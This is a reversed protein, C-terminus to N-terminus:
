NFHLEIKSREGAILNSSFPSTDHGLTTLRYNYRNADLNFNEIIVLTETDHVKIDSGCGTLSLIM